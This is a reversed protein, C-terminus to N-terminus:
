GEKQKGFLLIDLIWIKKILWICITTLAAMIVFALAIWGIAALSGIEVNKDAIGLIRAFRFHLVYIELTYQGIYALVKLIKGKAFHYVGYFCVFSGLLSATMQALLTMTNRVVIMDFCIVLVVFIIMALIWAVMAIANIKKGNKKDDPAKEVSKLKVYYPLVYLAWLYGVMYFPLYKVTLSPSLFTNGSRGQLILFMYACGVLVGFTGFRVWPNGKIKWALLDAIYAAAMTIVTVVWLTMLFWLGRDLAFLQLPIEEMFNVPHTLILWSFFPILYAFSRRGLQHLRKRVDPKENLQLPNRGAIFGSVMMFLPMQIAAIMDYFYPDALGNLGICHGLMVVLIAFGKVADLSFDRQKKGEM